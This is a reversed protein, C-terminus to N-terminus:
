KSAYLFMANHLDLHYTVNFAMDLTINRVIFNNCSTVGLSLSFHYTITTYHLNCM